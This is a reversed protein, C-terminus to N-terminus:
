GSKANPGVKVGSKQVFKQILSNCFIFHQTGSCRRTLYFSINFKEPEDTVHTGELFSSLLEVTPAFVWLRLTYLFNCFEM